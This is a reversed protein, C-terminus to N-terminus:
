PRAAQLHRRRGGGRRAYHMAKATYLREDARAILSDISDDRRSHAIGASAGITIHHGDITFPAALSALLRTALSQTDDENPRLSVFAFEDGGLRFATAFPACAGQLRMGVACLLRDGMSHGHADNVPKFGDLDIIVLGSRAPAALASTLMEYLARRNPLGTLLDTQAQRATAKQLQLLDIMHSHQQQIMRMLFGSALLIVAAALTDMDNGAIVLAALVPLVGTAIVAATAFRVSSLCFAAALAGIVMFLPYYTRQGPVSSLWSTSAWASATLCIISAIVVMRMIIQRAAHPTVPDRRRRLWWLLRVGCMFFISLPLGYGLMIPAAPDAASMATLVVLMTTVYLTPVQERLRALRLTALDDRVDAPVAPWWRRLM